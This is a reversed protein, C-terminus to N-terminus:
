PESSASRNPIEAYRGSSGTIAESRAGIGSPGPKAHNERNM